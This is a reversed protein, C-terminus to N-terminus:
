ETAITAVSGGVFVGFLGCAIGCAVGGAGASAVGWLTGMALAIIIIIAVREWTEM